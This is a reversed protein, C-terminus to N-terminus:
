DNSKPKIQMIDLRAVLIDVSKLEKETASIVLQSTRLDAVVKSRKDTLVSQVSALINSPSAFQLPVIKTVLPDPSEPKETLRTPPLTLAGLVSNIMELKSPEGVAILLKTDKHFSIAPTEKEGLMKWGTQIATTIDDVTMGHEIYTALSFFRCVKPSGAPKLLAQAPKEVSFYWVSDDSIKGQTRFGYTTRAIQYNPQSGGMGSYSIGTVYVETQQSAAELAQFLQSVDVGNMKLAPLKTDAFEDPVIVNLPRGMAKEIASALQRPTGGRFDLDFKTLALSEPPAIVKQLRTQFDSAPPPPPQQALVPTLVITALCLTLCNLAKM